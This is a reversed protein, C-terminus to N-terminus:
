DICLKRFRAVVPPLDQTSYWRWLADDQLPLSSIEAGFCHYHIRYRTVSHRVMQRSDALQCTLGFKAEFEEQIVGPEPTQLHQGSSRQLELWPLDWLGEWWKGPPNRRLLIRHRRDRILLGVHTLQQVPVKAKLLPIQNELGQQHAVCRARWPCRNCEPAVPTCILSGLEMLAQNLKGSGSKSPLVEEALAWLKKLSGSNEVPERLGIFRSLLRITNTELIPAPLDFAFSAIAGATYRGIGALSQLQQVNQPFEGGHRQVIQQAALHLNRARRYYGLGAWYQLVEQETARALSHVNPFRELFRQYYDLVTAVQTQQLMIESIWIPYPDRTQRWPLPRQHKSFWHHLQRRM